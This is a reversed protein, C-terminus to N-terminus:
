PFQSRLAVCEDRHRARREAQISLQPLAIIDPKTHRFTHAGSRLGLTDLRCGSFVMNRSPWCLAMQAYARTFLMGDRALRDINPTKVQPDGYCGIHPWLDDVAIWLVNPRDIVSAPVAGMWGLTLLFCAVHRMVCGVCVTLRCMCGGSAVECRGPRVCSVAFCATPRITM